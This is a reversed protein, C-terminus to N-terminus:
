ALVPPAQAYGDYPDYAAAVEDYEEPDVYNKPRNETCVGLTPSYYYEKGSDMFFKKWDFAERDTHAVFLSHNRLWESDAYFFFTEFTSNIRFLFEYIVFLMIIFFCWFDMFCTGYYPWSVCNIGGFPWVGTGPTTIMNTISPCAPKKADGVQKVDMVFIVLFAGGTWFLITGVVYAVFRRRWIAMDALAVAACACAIGCLCFRLRNNTQFWGRVSTQLNRADVPRPKVRLEHLKLTLIFAIVVFAATLALAIYVYIRRTQAIHTFPSPPPFQARPANASKEVPVRGPGWAWNKQMTTFVLLFCLTFAALSQCADAVIAATTINERIRCVNQPSSRIYNLPSFHVTPFTLDPCDRIWRVQDIGFAFSVASCVGLAFLLLACLMLAGKMPGTTPRARIAFAAIICAIAGMVFNAVRLAKMSKRLGAEDHDGTRWEYDRPTGDRFGNMGRDFGFPGQWFTLGILMGASILILILWPLALASYRFLSFDYDPVTRLEAPRGEPAKKKGAIKLHSPPEVYGGYEMAPDM